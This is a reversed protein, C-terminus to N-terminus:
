FEGENHEGEPTWPVGDQTAQQADISHGDWQLAWGRPHPFKEWRGNGRKSEPLNFRGNSRGAAQDRHMTEWNLAWARPEPFKTRKKGESKSQSGESESYQAM